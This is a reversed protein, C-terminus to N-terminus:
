GFAPVLHLIGSALHWICCLKNPEPIFAIINGKIRITIRTNRMFFVVEDYFCFAEQKGICNRFLADQMKYGSDQM